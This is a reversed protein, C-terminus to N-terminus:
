QEIFPIMLVKGNVYNVEVHLTEMEIDDNAGKMWIGHIIIDKDYSTLKRQGSVQHVIEDGKIYISEIDDEPSYITVSYSILTRAPNMLWTAKSLNKATVLNGNRQSRKPFYVILIIFFILILVCIFFEILKM